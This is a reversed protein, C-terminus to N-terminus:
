AAEVENGWVTWGPRPVGRAFLELKSLHPYLRELRQYVIEPKQSHRRRPAEIVSDLRDPPEAPSAHGRRGILLLEHRYRSWVGMGIRDKIWVENGVYGFDWAAMLELAEPLHSNVAWLYLLADEAAPLALAILEELPLTPYYQEPAYDSDPNGLQWPPDAYVLEYSGSPLPPPGGSARGRAARQLKKRARHAHLEGDKVREFLHPDAAHVTIADQATRASCGASRAVLERTREGRPPLTEVELSNRLNARRRREAQARAQQYADLEVALAAKQSQTLHRRQLAGLLMHEVEDEPMVVRVPVREHGNDRTARLRHHGDLVVGAPTIEIPEPVGRRAIDERFSLFDAASMAPVLTARKHERLEAVARTVEGVKAAGGDTM